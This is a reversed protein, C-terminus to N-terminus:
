NICHRSVSLYFTFVRGSHEFIELDSRRSTKSVDEVVHIGLIMPLCQCFGHYKNFSIQLTMWKRTDATEAGYRIKQCMLGRVLAMTTHVFILALADHLDDHLLASVGTSPCPPTVSDYTQHTEVPARSFFHLQHHRRACSLVIPPAWFLRPSAPCYPSWRLSPTEPPQETM